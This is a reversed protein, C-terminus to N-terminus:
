VGPTTKQRAGCWSPDTKIHVLRNEGGWEANRGRPVAKTLDGGM